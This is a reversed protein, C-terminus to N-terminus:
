LLDKVSTPLPDAEQTTFLLEQRFPNCRKRAYKTGLSIPTPELSHHCHPGSIISLILQGFNLKVKSFSAMFALKKVIIEVSPVGSSKVVCSSRISDRKGTSASM